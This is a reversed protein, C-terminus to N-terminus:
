YTEGIESMKRPRAPPGMDGDMGISTRRGASQRRPLGSPTPIASKDIASLRRAMPTVIDGGDTQDDADSDRTSASMSLSQTHSHGSM